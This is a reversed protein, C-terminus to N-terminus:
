ARQPSAHVEEETDLELEHPLVHLYRCEAGFFCKNRPYYPCIKPARPHPPPLFLTTTTLEHHAHPIRRQAEIRLAQQLALQSLADADADADATSTSTSAPPGLQAPPKRLCLGPEADADADVDVDVGRPTWGRGSSGAAVVAKSGKNSSRSSSKFGARSAAASGPPATPSICIGFPDYTIGPLNLNAILSQPTPITSPLSPSPSPSPPTTPQNPSPLAVSTTHKHSPGTTSSAELNKSAELTNKSAELPTNPAELPNKHANLPNKPAELPNKVFPSKPASWPNKRAQCTDEPANIRTESAGLPNKHADLPNRLAELPTKSTNLLDQQGVSAVRAPKTSIATARFTSQSATVEAQDTSERQAHGTSSNGTNSTTTPPVFSKTHEAPTDVVSSDKKSNGVSHEFRQMQASQKKPEVKKKKDHRGKKKGLTPGTPSKVAGAAAVSKGSAAAETPPANNALMSSGGGSTEGAAAIVSCQTKGVDIGATSESKEISKGAAVAAWSM